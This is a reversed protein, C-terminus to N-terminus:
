KSKPPADELIELPGLEVKGEKPDHHRLGHSEMGFYRVSSWVMNKLADGFDGHESVSLRTTWLPKLKKYKVATVRDYAELVVFYRNGGLEQLTDQGMGMHRTFRARDLADTYGLIRANRDDLRDREANALSLQSIAADAASEEAPHSGVPSSSAGAALNARSLDALAGAAQDTVLSADNGRSGQTAGWFVMILLGAQEQDTAPLYNTKALANAVTRAVQAFKLKDLGPDSVARNLNGGEGFIYFEPKFKNDPQRERQYGNFVVSSVAVAEEVASLKAPLLLVPLLILPFRLLSRMPHLLADCSVRRPSAADVM